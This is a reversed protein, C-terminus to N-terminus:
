NRRGGSERRANRVSEEKVEKLVADAVEAAKRAVQGTVMKPEM